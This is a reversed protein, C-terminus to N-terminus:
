AERDRGNFKEQGVGLHKDQEQAVSKEGIRMTASGEM